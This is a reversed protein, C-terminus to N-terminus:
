VIKLVEITNFTKDDNELLLRNTIKKPFKNLNEIFRQSAIDKGGKSSGVHIVMKGDKYNMAEFLNVQM